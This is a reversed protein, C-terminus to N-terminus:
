KAYLKKRMFHFGIGFLILLVLPIGITLIQITSYDSAVKEKNLLPLTIDKNRINILGSDDLLFNMANILFERNGYIQQTWPDIGNNLPKKNVYTYNLIDGDAIFIMKNDVSEEKNETYKFPTIRNKFGSTFKGELLVGLIQNGNTFANEDLEEMFDYLNIELPSGVAKSQSSSELLVTKQIGNKLTDLTNAFELKVLNINKNVPHNDKSKVIPSYLWDIPVDGQQSQATIPTSLLDQVLSPNVRIGYKFLLDDLNLDRPYAITANEQNQLSDIDMVVKDMLWLSKGGNMIYQDVIYKESDTFPETPKPIILADFRKLNAIVKSPNDQLSDLNFEGLQYYEKLEMLYDAMYKPQLEGKGTLVAIKKKTKPNLKTLADAFTFELLQVSKNINESPSNGFNNVLLPVRVSKEGRNAIAWPFIQILEKKGKKTSNINTPTFGLKILEARYQEAQSEDELPNTFQVILNSNYAKFEEVLQRTENQLRKFEPPFNGDLFIDIFVPEDISQILEITSQSLTYRKDHTLDFRKYFFSGLVNLLVLITLIIFVSFIPKSIRNKM